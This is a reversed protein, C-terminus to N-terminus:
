RRDFVKLVVLVISHLALIFVVAIGVGVVSAVVFRTTPLARKQALLFAGIAAALMSGTLIRVFSRLQIGSWGRPQRQEPPPTAMLNFIGKGGPNPAPSRMLGRNAIDRKGPLRATRVGLLRSAM